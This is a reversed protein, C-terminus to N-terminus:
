AVDKDYRLYRLQLTEIRWKGDPCRAYRERYHGYGTHGGYGIPSQGPDPWSVRDQMAWIVDASDGGPAFAIEPNHVQHATVAKEILEAVKGVTADRGRITLQPSIDFVLDETFCDGFLAWDKTDVARCYRAKTECIAAWDLFNADM